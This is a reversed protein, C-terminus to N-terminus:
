RALVNNSATPSNRFLAEPPRPPHLIGNRVADEAPNRTGQDWDDIEGVADNNPSLYVTLEAVFHRLCQVPAARSRVPLFYEVVDGSPESRVRLPGFHRMRRLKRALSNSPRRCITVPRRSRSVTCAKGARSISPIPIQVGERVLTPRSTSPNKSPSRPSSSEMLRTCM